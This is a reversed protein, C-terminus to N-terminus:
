KAKSDMPMSGYGRRETRVPRGAPGIATAEARLKSNAQTFKRSFEPPADEPRAAKAIMVECSRGAMGLAKRPLARPRHENGSQTM